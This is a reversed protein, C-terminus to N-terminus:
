GQYSFPSYMCQRGDLNWNWGHDTVRSRTARAVVAPFGPAIGLIHNSVTVDGGDPGVLPELTTDAVNPIKVVYGKGQKEFTIKTSTVGLMQGIQGALAAPHGGAQGGFIKLLSGKQADSAREDVYVAVKWKVEHMKGPSHLLLAVNLGDLKVADDHGSAIEWAVLANCEGQTPPGLVICPCIAECNCSELYTGELKWSM